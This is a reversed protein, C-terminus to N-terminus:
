GSDTAPSTRPPTDGTDPPPPDDGTDPQNEHLRQLRQQQREQHSLHHIINELAALDLKIVFQGIREMINEIRALKDTLRAVSNAIEAADMPHVSDMRSLLREAEMLMQLRLRGYRQHIQFSPHDEDWYLFNDEQLISKKWHRLTREPIQLEDATKQIDGLNIILNRIAIAKERNSYM